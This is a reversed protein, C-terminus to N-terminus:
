VKMYILIGLIMGLISGANVRLALDFGLRMVGSDVLPNFTIAFLERYGNAGGFSMWAFFPNGALLESLLGGILAGSLILVVLLWPSRKNRM